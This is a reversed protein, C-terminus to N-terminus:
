PRYVLGIRRAPYEGVTSICRRSDSITMHHDALQLQEVCLHTSAALLVTRCHTTELLDHGARFLASTKGGAGVLALRSSLSLRLAQSLRM